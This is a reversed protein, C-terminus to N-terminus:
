PSYDNDTISNKCRSCNFAYSTYQGNQPFHAHSVLRLNPSITSGHLSHPFFITIMFQPSPGNTNLSLLIFARFFTFFYCICSFIFHAAHVSRQIRLQPLNAARLLLKSLRVIFLLQHQFASCFLPFIWPPYETKSRRKITGM